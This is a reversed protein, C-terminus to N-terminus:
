VPSVRPAYLKKQMAATRRVRLQWSESERVSQPTATWGMALLTFVTGPIATLAGIGIWATALGFAAVCWAIRRSNPWPGAAFAYRYRTVFWIVFCIWILLGIVGQECLIRSYENEMGIPNRVQGSLFYPISTGGGGLGNGMPYEFLIEFFGRNVSGSIRDAVAETDGLSKFRQFRSNSIAILGFAAVLVVFVIRSKAQLRTTFITALIIVSGIIFNLRTASLLVGLMAAAIGLLALMGMKRMRTRQWLGILFPMTGVMTGGYAHASTFIAPIRYYGGEVDGSSYMILTVPSVPYFRSLGFLYEAGAFVLAVLNLVALGTSFQLLDKDKLRAGLLLIPIFLINGRLGVLSILLPQFPLFLLLMPWIVLLLTWLWIPRIRKAEDPDSDAWIQSIYLGILASDFIFHSFTTLLNARLIGYFYGSIMLVALGLGFSRKGAWFTAGFALLCLFLAMM